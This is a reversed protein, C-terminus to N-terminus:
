YTGTIVLTQNTAYQGGPTLGAVNILYSITYITVGSSKPATAITEGSVYRYQNATGYNSSASGYGFQGNSPNAGFSTPSTNAVLNIGFQEVGPSSAGTTAMAPLTHVGNSPANGLIQVSYGYSTYDLVSFTTTTTTPTSASFSGFGVNGNALSFGLAPDNTTKSGSQTKFTASAQNGIAANGVTDNVKYSASSPNVSGGDANFSTETLKYHASSSTDAYIPLSFSSALMTVAFGTVGWKKGRKLM